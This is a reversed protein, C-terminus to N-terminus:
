ATTPFTQALAMAKEGWVLAGDTDDALMHLQSLNSYAMALEPGPLLQELAGVAANGYSDADEGVSSGPCGRCGACLIEWGCSM